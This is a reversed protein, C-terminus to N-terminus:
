PTELPEVRFCGDAYEVVRCNTVREAIEPFHHTAVKGIRMRAPGGYYSDLEGCSFRNPAGHEAVAVKLVHAIQAIEQVLTRTTKM